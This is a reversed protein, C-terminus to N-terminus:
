VVKERLLLKYERWVLWIIVADLLCFIAMSVSPGRVFVYVQYVLFAGLIALAIPYARIIKKLLCVVLAIKVIGHTLLFIILFVLGSAALQDDLRAVYQAVFHHVHGTSRGAEVGIAVLTTHVLHPSILLVLGGILEALGDIGKIIIGIDFITNFLSSSRARMTEM